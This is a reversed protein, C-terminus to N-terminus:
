RNAGGGSFEKSTWTSVEPLFINPGIVLLGAFLPTKKPGYVDRGKAIMTDAFKKVIPLYGASGVHISSM